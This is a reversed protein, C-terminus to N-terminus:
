AALYISSRWPSCGATSRTSSSRASRRGTRWISLGLLGFALVVLAANVVPGLWPHKPKEHAPRGDAM